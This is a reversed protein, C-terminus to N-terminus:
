RVWMQDLLPGWMPHQQFNGVRKSLLSVVRRNVLPVVPAADDIQRYLQPWTTDAAAPGASTATDLEEEIRRDCFRSFNVGQNAPYVEDCRFILSFDSPTGFDALWGNIGMQAQNCGFWPQTPWENNVSLGKGSYDLVPTEKMPFNPLPSGNRRDLIECNGVKNCTSFAPYSKGNITTNM